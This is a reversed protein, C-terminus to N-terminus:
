PKRSIQSRSRRKQHEKYWALDAENLLSEIEDPRLNWSKRLFVYTDWRNRFPPTIVPKEGAGAGIRNVSYADGIRLIRFEQGLSMGEVDTESVRYSGPLIRARWTDVLGDSSPQEVLELVAEYYFTDGDILVRMGEVLQVPEGKSKDPRFLILRGEDDIWRPDNFDHTIKIM